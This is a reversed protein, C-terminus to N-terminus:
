VRRLPTWQDSSLGCVAIEVKSGKTSPYALVAGITPHTRCFEATADVGLVYFATALADAEAATPAVVTASFVGEAPWGTRPDLIHGYRKGRYRFFQVSAGSTALAQDVLQIEGLPRESQLPDSVGVCWGRGAGRSANCGRALVSSNGGHWMFNDLGESQLLEACRDLAYGKGISGLNLEVGPRRLGITRQTADLEIAASGVCALAQRLADDDPVAGQRRFFGWVKSLPGATIDFAGLTDRHLELSQQLLAFLRPEVEIPEHAARQNILSVASSDRYVTLQAELQEVLDLARLASDTGDPYEGANLYLAFRCAMASREFQLLYHGERPTPSPESPSLAARDRLPKLQLFERRDPEPPTSM